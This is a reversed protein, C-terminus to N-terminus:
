AGRGTEPPKEFGIPPSSLRARQQRLAAAPEGLSELGGIPPFRLIQETM